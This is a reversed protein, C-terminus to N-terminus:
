RARPIPRRTSSATLVGSRSSEAIDDNMTALNEECARVTPHRAPLAKRFIRLARECLRAAESTREQSLLLVALNNLTNALTPHDSGLVEEGIRLAQRYFREAEVLQGRKQLLAALNNYNICLEEHMPGHVRTFTEIASRYLSEAEDLKELEELIAALAAEDAAVAPHDTGLARRRIAVGQRAPAEAEAYRGRAHELGGMNHLVTAIETHDPGLIKEILELSEEYLKRAAGFRGLYKYTVALDNCAFAVSLGDNARRALRLAKRAHTAAEQYRGETILAKALEQRARMRLEIIAAATEDDLAKARAYRLLKMAARADRKAPRTKGSERHITGRLVLCHALDPDRRNAYRRFLKLSRNILRAAEAFNREELALSAADFLRCAENRGREREHM